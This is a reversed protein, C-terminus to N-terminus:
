YLCSRSVSIHSGLEPTITKWTGSISVLCSTINCIALALIGFIRLEKKQKRQGTSPTSTYAFITEPNQFQAQARRPHVPPSTQSIGRVYDRASYVKMLVSIEESMDYLSRKESTSSCNAQM